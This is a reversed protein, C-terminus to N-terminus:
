GGGLNMALRLGYTRPMSYASQVAGTLGSAISSTTYREDGINEVFLQASYKENNSKWSIYANTITYPDQKMEGQGPLSAEFVDLYFSDSYAVDASAVISGIQTQWEYQGGLFAKWEPSRLMNNGDVDIPPGGVVPDSFSADGSYQTDLYTVGGNLQFGEGILAVVDLEAGFIEGAAANTINGAIDVIRFIQIDSYDYYFTAGNLQLRGDLLQTKLGAEYAWITEPDFAGDCESINFGGAKFGSSVSLYAMTDPSIDYSLIGTGTTKTWDKDIKQDCPTGGLNDSAQRHMDKSDATYRIGLTAHLQDTVDVTTQGFAAYSETTQDGRFDVFPIASPLGTDLRTGFAALSGPPLPVGDPGGLGFLAEFTTQFAPLNYAFDAEADDHFYFAGVIWKGRDDWYNGSFDLEVSTQKNEQFNKSSGLDIDTGDNDGRFRNSGEQYAVITKSTVPGLEKTLTGSYGWQELRIRSPVETYSDLDNPDVIVPESAQPFTLGFIDALSQGGLEPDPYTLFGGVNNPAIGTPTMAIERIMYQGKNTKNRTYNGRLVLDTTEDFEFLLAGRTGKLDEYGEKENLTKNDIHGDNEDSTVSIRGSIMDTLGRSGGAEVRWRDYNGGTVAVNLEPEQSPLRSITNIAGGIANRGYLTGQPGRLIEIRELDFQPMASM